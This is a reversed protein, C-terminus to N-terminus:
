GVGDINRGREQGQSHGVNRGLGPLWFLCPRGWRGGGRLGCFGGAVGAACASWPGPSRLSPDSWPLSEGISPLNEHVLSAMRDARPNPEPKKYMYGTRVLSLLPGGPLHETNPQPFPTQNLKELRWGKCVFHGGGGWPGELTQLRNQGRQKRQGPLYGRSAPWRVCSRDERTDTEAFIGGM